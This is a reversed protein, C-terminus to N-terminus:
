NQGIVKQPRIENLLKELAAPPMEAESNTFLRVRGFSTPLDLVAVRAQQALLAAVQDVHGFRSNEPAQELVIWGFPMQTLWEALAEATQFRAQYNLGMFNGSALAKAGRVIYFSRNPDRAAFAAILAGEAAPAGVMLVIRNAPQARMIREAVQDMQYSSAYPIRAVSAMGGVLLVAAVMAVKGSWGAAPRISKAVWAVLFCAGDAALVIMPPLLPVLYRPQIDAPVLCSFSFIALVAALM